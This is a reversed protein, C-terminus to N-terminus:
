FTITGVKYNGKVTDLQLTLVQKTENPKGFNTYVEAQVIVPQLIKQSSTGYYDAQIIYEGKVAKKICFEEPGYGRTFDRSLRAGNETYKNQYSCKEGDPDTVWLDIDCDDTNWTLVIRIDVPLNEFLEKDYGLEKLSYGERQIISKMDNLAVLEIEAYRSDWETTLIKYLTDLAERSKGAKDLALGKDRLFLPAEPKLKVLKSYIYVADEYDEWEYLKNGLARLVDTNELNIEALNSLIRQAEEYLKCKKFYDAVEMYFSPSGEYDARLELYKKYMDKTRTKKLIAVYSSKGDWAKLSVKPTNDQGRAGGAQKAMVSNSTSDMEMDASTAYTRTPESAANPAVMVESEELYVEGDADESGTMLTRRGKDNKKKFEGPKADYWKKYAKYYDYVKVSIKGGEDHVPKFTNNNSVIKNYEELLEEPPVIGYRVYDHVSELVLFSTEKTVIKFEKSLSIIEERNKDYDSSLEDIAKAGWIRPINMESQPADFVSLTVYLEHVVKNGYGLCIKLPAEKEELIGTVTLSGGEVVSGPLPYVDKIDGKKYEYRIIKLQENELSKVADKVSYKSLNIYSGLSDRALKKLYNYDNSTGSTIVNIVKNIKEQEEGYNFLGDSFLLIETKSTFKGLDIKSFGSAGDFDLAKIYEEIKKLEEEGNVRIKLADKELLRDAFPYISVTVATKRKGRGSQLNDKIYAKLFEIEKEIDRNKASASVDFLVTIDDTRGKPYIGSNVEKTFYFYSDVGYSEVYAKSTDEADFTFEEEALKSMSYKSESLHATVGKKTNRSNKGKGNFKTESKERYYCRVDMTVNDVIEDCLNNMKYTIQNTKKDKQLIEQYVIKVRRTGKATFPYIRTKFNNGQTMEVLGPDVNRREIDELVVRAKDKEVVVGERMKGNIDLAYGTLVQGESLPFEFEGELTKNTTNTFLMTCSTTAINGEIDVQIEVDTLKISDKADVAKILPRSPIFRREQGFCLLATFGFLVSLLFKKKNM